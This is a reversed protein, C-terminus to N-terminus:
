VQQDELKWSGDEQQVMSKHNQCWWAAPVLYEDKLGAMWKNVLAIDRNIDLRFLDREGQTGAVAHLYVELDHWTMLNGGRLYFSKRSDIKLEQGIEAFGLPPLNPVADPANSIRLVHVDESRDFIYKFDANGVRPCAFAFVTVPCKKSQNEIINFGHVIIDAACLTSLAAGLSHGTLTLSIEEDKYADLLRKLEEIIQDRVSTKNYQSLPDASTYMSLWGEHVFLNKDAGLLADAPVMPYDFGTGIEMYRVTGRWAIVIDRRGLAAKGEDTAVAIYGIWNSEKNWAERSLSRFLFSAPLDIRSTAYFYKTPQYLFPNAVTLGVSSFLNKMSFRCDGAYKSAQESNFCDYGAQSMEGYHIIYRRLDIDLPELLKEWNKEGSLEKWREAISDSVGDM